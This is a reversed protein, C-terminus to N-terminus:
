RGCIRKIRNDIFDMATCVLLDKMETDLVAKELEDALSRNHGNRLAEVIQLVAAGRILRERTTRM